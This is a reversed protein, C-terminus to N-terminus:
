RSLAPAGANIRFDPWAIAAFSLKCIRRNKSPSRRQGNVSRSSRTLEKIDLVKRLARIADEFHGAAYLAFGLHWLYWEPYHPNLRMAQRVSDIGKQPEGEFTYAEQLFVLVDADNPNLELARRLSKVAAVREGGYLKVIGLSMHALASEPSLEIAQAAASVASRMTNDTVHQNYFVWDSYHFVALWAYADALTPDLELAKHPAYKATSRGQARFVLQRGRVLWEYAEITETPAGSRSPGRSPRLQEGLASVINRVVDDQVAFLDNIETTANRGCTAATAPTLLSPPSEFAVRRAAYAAKSSMSFALSAALAGFITLGKRTSSAPTGPSSSSRHTARSSPSRIRPSEM